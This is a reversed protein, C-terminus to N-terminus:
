SRFGVLRSSIFVCYRPTSFSKKQTRTQTRKPTDLGTTTISPNDIVSKEKRSKKKGLPLCPHVVLRGLVRRIHIRQEVTLSLLQQQQQQYRTSSSFLGPYLFPLLLILLRAVVFVDMVLCDIWASHRGNFEEDTRRGIVISDRTPWTTRLMGQWLVCLLFLVTTSAQTTNNRLNLSSKVSLQCERCYSYSFHRYRVDTKRSSLALCWTCVLLM